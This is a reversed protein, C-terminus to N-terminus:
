NFIAPWYRFKLVNDLFDFINVIRTYTSPLVSPVLKWTLEQEEKQEKPGHLCWNSSEKDNNISQNSYSRHSHQSHPVDQINVWPTM